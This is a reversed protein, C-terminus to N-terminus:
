PELNRPRICRLARLTVTGGPLIGTGVWQVTVTIERPDNLSIAVLGPDVGGPGILGPVPFTGAFTNASEPPARFIAEMQEEAATTALAKAQSFRNAREGNALVLMLSVVGITMIFIAIALEIITLGENGNIRPIWKRM